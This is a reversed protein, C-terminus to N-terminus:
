VVISKSTWQNAWTTLGEQWTCVLKQVVCCPYITNISQFSFLPIAQLTNIHKSRISWKQNVLLNIPQTPKLLMGSLGM